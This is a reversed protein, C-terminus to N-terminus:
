SQATIPVKRLRAFFEQEGFRTRTVQEVVFPLAHDRRLSQVLDLFGGPTFVWGHVDVYEGAEARAVDRDALARRTADSLGMPAGHMGLWHALARNHTVNEIHARVSAASHFRRQEHHAELVQALTSEPNFYDFCYRKDPVILHYQGGDELLGAVQFLHGLLDPQHEITHSSFVDSFSHEVMSLDGKASVYDIEPVNGFRRGHRAAREQLAARDLVDFYRVGPGSMQPNDFPGIELCNTPDIAAVFRPRTIAKALPGRPVLQQLVAGAALCARKGTRLLARM